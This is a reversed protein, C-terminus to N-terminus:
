ADDESGRPGALDILIDDGDPVLRAGLAASAHSIENLADSEAGLLSPVTENANNHRVFRLRVEALDSAPGFELEAM